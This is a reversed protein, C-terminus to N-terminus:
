KCGCVFDFKTTHKISWNSIFVNMVLQDM